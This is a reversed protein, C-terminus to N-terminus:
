GKVRANLTTQARFYSAHVSKATGTDLQKQFQLPTMATLARSHHRLALQSMGAITALQEVRLTKRLEFIVASAKASKELRSATRRHWLWDGVM